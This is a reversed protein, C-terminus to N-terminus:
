NYQSMTKDSGNQLLFTMAEVVQSYVKEVATNENENMNFKELVYDKEDQNTSRGIGLRIRLFDKTELCDIISQVGKHGGSSRGFSFKIKGLPLDLDDHLVILHDAKLKLLELLKKTAIGSVNMYTLPWGLAYDNNYFYDASKIKKHELGKQDRALREVIYRGFNHRTGEYESGLNGLGLFLFM